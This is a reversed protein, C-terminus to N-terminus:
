ARPAQKMGYLTNDMKRNYDLCPQHESRPPQRM